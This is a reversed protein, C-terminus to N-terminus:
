AARSVEGTVSNVYYRSVDTAICWAPILRQAASATSQLLYGGNVDGIATCVEGSGIAYDLFRVLATVGDINGGRGGAEVSPVFSGVVGTLRNEAFTLTLGANFVTVPEEELVRVADVTGSGEPTLDLSLVTYGHAAFLAESFAAPDSVARDTEAEVTGSARLLCQGADGVYRYIGGGIDEVTCAGLFEAAFAAEAERNRVTDVASLRLPETPVLAPPLNVGNDAFLQVLEAVTREHVAREQTKRGVLMVLLCVNVLALIVIIISKLRSTKM